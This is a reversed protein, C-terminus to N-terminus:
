AKRLKEIAQAVNSVFFFQNGNNSEFIFSKLNENTYKNFDGIIALKIHYNVFKQLVEGALCSKLKFFNPHINNEHLIIKKIGKEYAIAILDLADQVINIIIDDAYFEAIKLGYNNHIKIKM